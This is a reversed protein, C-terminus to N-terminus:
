VRRLGSTRNRRLQLDTTTVPTLESTSIDLSTYSSDYNIIALADEVEQIFNVYENIM